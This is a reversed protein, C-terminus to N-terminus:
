RGATVREVSLLLEVTRGYKRRLWGIGGGLTLGAVGTHTVIGAAVALGAAQTAADIEGLLVGPGARVTHADPDIEVSKMPSLDIVLGDDCTSMGPFSHGGGRVAAQLGTRRALLLAARVDEVGICRAILSPFRDVSGNWVARHEDYAPDGPRVLQGLFGSALENLASADLETALDARQMGLDERVRNGLALGAYSRPRRPYAGGLASPLRPHSM